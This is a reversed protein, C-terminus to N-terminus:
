LEIIPFLLFSWKTITIIGVREGFKLVVSLFLLICSYLDLKTESCVLHIFFLIRLEHVFWNKNETLLNNFSTWLLFPQM